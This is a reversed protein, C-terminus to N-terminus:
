NVLSIPNRKKKKKKRLLFKMNSNHLLWNYAFPLKGVVNFFVEHLFNSHLILGVNVLSLMNRRLERQLENM